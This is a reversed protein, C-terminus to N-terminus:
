DMQKVSLNSWCTHSSGSSGLLINSADLVATDVVGSGKEEGNVRYTFTGTEPRYQFELHTWYGYFWDDLESDEVMVDFSEADVYGNVSMEYHDGHMTAQIFTGSGPTDIDDGGIRLVPSNPHNSFVDVSVLEETASGIGTPIIIKKDGTQRWCLRGGHTYVGGGTSVAGTPTSTLDESFVTTWPDCGDCSPHCVGEPIIVLPTEPEIETLPFEIYGCYGVGTGHECGDADM